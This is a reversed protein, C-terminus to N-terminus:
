QQKKNRASFWDTLIGLEYHLLMPYVWSNTTRALWSFMLGGPIASFTETAPKGIHALTSAMTQFWKAADTGCAEEVPKELFGRFFSEWAVYYFAESLEWVIFDTRDTAASPPLPYENMVGEDRAGTWAFFAVLPMGVGLLPIGIWWRGPRTRIACPSRLNVFTNFLHPAVFLWTFASLNQYLEPAMRKLPGEPLLPDIVPALKKRYFDRQGPYLYITLFVTGAAMTRNARARARRRRCRRIFGTM